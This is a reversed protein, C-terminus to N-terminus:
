IKAQPVIYKLVNKILAASLDEFLYSIKAMSTECNLHKANLIRRRRVDKQLFVGDLLLPVRGQNADTKTKQHVCYVTCHKTSRTM